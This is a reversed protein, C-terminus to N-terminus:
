YCLIKIISQFKLSNAYFLIGVLLPLINGKEISMIIKCYQTFKQSNFYNKKKKQNPPMQNTYKFNIKTIYRKNNVNVQKTLYYFM